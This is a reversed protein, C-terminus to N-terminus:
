AVARRHATLIADFIPHLTDASADTETLWRTVRLTAWAEHDAEAQPMDADYCADLLVNSARIYARPQSEFPGVRLLAQHADNLVELQHETAM